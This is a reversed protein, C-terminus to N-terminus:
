LVLRHIYSGETYGSLFYVLFYFVGLSNTNLILVNFIFSNFLTENERMPYFLPSAFRFGLTSNGKISCILIYISIGIFLINALYGMNNVLLFNLVKDFLNFRKFDEDHFNETKM